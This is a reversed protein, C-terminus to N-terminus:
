RAHDRRGHVHDRYRREQQVLVGTAGDPIRKGSAMLAVIDGQFATYLATLAQEHATELAALDTQYRDIRASIPDFGTIILNSM